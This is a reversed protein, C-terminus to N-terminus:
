AREQKDWKFLIVNGTSKTGKTIVTSKEECINIGILEVTVSLIYFLFYNFEKDLFFCEDDVLITLLTTKQRRLM